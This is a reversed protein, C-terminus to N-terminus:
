CKVKKVEKVKLRFLHVSKVTLLKLESKVSMLIGVMRLILYTFYVLFPSSM